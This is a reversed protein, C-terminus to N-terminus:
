KTNSIRGLSKLVYDKSWNKLNPSLIGMKYLFFSLDLSILHHQWDCLWISGLEQISLFGDKLEQKLEKDYKM